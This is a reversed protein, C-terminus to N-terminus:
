MRLPTLGGNGLMRNNAIRVSYNHSAHAYPQGVGIGGAVVGSNNELVNNTLQENNIAAQLQIGGAGEGSGTMLAVGDVRSQNFAPQNLATTVPTLNYASTNQAVVTVDAGRLVPRSPDAYPGHAAIV